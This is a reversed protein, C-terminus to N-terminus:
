INIVTDAIAIQLKRLNKSYLFGGFSECTEKLRRLEPTFRNSPNANLLGDLAKKVDALIEKAENQGFKGTDLGNACDYALAALSNLTNLNGLYLKENSKESSALPYESREASLVKCNLNQHKLGSCVSEADRKQAYCAVTIYFKGNYELVYGAGGFDDVAGSLSSASVANDCESYYVFHYSCNFEIKANSYGAAYVCIGASVAAVALVSLIFPSIKVRGM